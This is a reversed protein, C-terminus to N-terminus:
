IVYFLLVGVDSFAVQDLIDCITVRIMCAPLMCPPYLYVLVWKGWPNWCCKLAWHGCTGQFVWMM